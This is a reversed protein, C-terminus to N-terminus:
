YIDKMTKAGQLLKFNSYRPSQPALGNKGEDPTLKIPGIKKIESCSVIYKGTDKYPRINQILGYWRVAKVPLTEYMAIYKLQNIMSSSIRIAWWSKENIFARKFGEENAPCVITDIERATKIAGTISEKIDEQFESYHYLVDDSDKINVYKKFEIVDPTNALQKLVYNLDETAEDIVVIFGLDNEYIMFDLLESFNPFRTRKLLSGNNRDKLENLLFNKLERSGPKFLSIFKWLQLGIHKYADHTALENEVIYLRPSADSFSLLFGDPIAILDKKSSSFRKKRGIYISDTGFIASARKEVNKELEDENAFKALKYINDKQIIRSM